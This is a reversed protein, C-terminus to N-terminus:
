AQLINRSFTYVRIKRLLYRSTHELRGTLVYRYFAVVSGESFGLSNSSAICHSAIALLDKM